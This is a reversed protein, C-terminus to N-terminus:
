GIHGTDVREPWVNLGAFKALERQREDYTVFRQPEIQRAFAVHLIDMTRCGIRATERSLAHFAVMLATRSVGPVFYQGIQKRREYHAIQNAAQSETLEGWFVKLRLANCLEAELMDWVPLPHDQSAIFRQLPVSESEFIYLKVFASTDLYIM